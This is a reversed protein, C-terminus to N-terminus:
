RHYANTIIEKLKEAAERRLQNFASMRVFSNDDIRCDVSKIEVSSGGSKRMKDILVDATTPAKGAAEVTEGEVTISVATRDKGCNEALLTIRLPSGIRAEIEAKAPVMKESSLIEAEIRSLLEENRTRWVEMGPKIKKLDKGNLEITQGSCGDTGSTLEVVAEFADIDGAAAKKRIEVVDGRHLDQELKVAIKPAHVANVMGVKLGMHNPRKLAAMVKGKDTFYYGPYFGGRNYIDQLDLLHQKIGKKYKRKLEEPLQDYSEAGGKLELYLDRAERYASVAAAVYSPNKMRGEIKFSDIGADILYPLDELVCMDKLSMLHEEAIVSAAGNREGAGAVNSNATTVDDYLEYCKRCPQACRGRNGSRGGAFSSFLCKGSYAFCMAGHVFTEIEIDVNEKISKIEELSLERAPVIRELGLEKALKAGYSSSISMQTSAHVPLDPFNERLIKLIGMDQVLVADLGAKYYPMLYQVIRNEGFVLGGAESGSAPSNGGFIETEKLLTNLTMYVKVGHLHCFDLAKVYTEEDFNGAYARASFLSGGAYVADCGAKVAAEMAEYTGAPALIEPGMTKMQKMKVSSNKITFM